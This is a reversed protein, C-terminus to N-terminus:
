ESSIERRIFISISQRVTFDEWEDLAGESVAYPVNRVQTGAHQKIESCFTEGNLTHVKMCFHCDSDNVHVQLAAFYDDCLGQLARSAMRLTTRATRNEDEVAVGVLRSPARPNHGYPVWGLIPFTRNRKDLFSQLQSSLNTTCRTRFDVLDRLAWGEFSRLAEEL